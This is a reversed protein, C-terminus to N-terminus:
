HFDVYYALDDSSVRPIIGLFDSFGTFTTFPYGNIERGPPWRAEERSCRGGWGHPGHAKPGGEVRENLGDGLLGQREHLGLIHHCGQGHGM